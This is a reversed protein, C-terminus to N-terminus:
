HVEVFKTGNKQNRVLFKFGLFICVKGGGRKISHVMVSVADLLGHIHCM